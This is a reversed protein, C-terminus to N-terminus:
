SQPVKQRISATQGAIHDQRKAWAAFIRKLERAADRHATDRDESRAIDISLECMGGWIFNLFPEVPRQDIEGAKMALEIARRMQTMNHPAELRRLGEYGLATFGDILFIQAIGPDLTTVKLLDLCAAELKKWPGGKAQKAALRGREALERQIDEVVASFIETKGAFHHYLAGRTVGAAAVIDEISTAAFGKDAFLRRATATLAATTAASQEAQRPGQRRQRRPQTPM